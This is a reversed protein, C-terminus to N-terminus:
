FADIISPDKLKGFDVFPLFVLPERPGRPITFNLDQNLELRIPEACHRCETLITVTLTTNRLRGQV